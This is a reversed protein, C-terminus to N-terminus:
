KGEKKDIEKSYVVTATVSLIAGLVAVLASNTFLTLVITAVTTGIAVTLSIVSRSM